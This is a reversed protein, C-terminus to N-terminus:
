DEKDDTKVSFGGLLMGVFLFWGWGSTGTVAMYASCSIATVCPIAMVFALLSLKM